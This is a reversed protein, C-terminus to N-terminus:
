GYSDGDRCADGLALWYAKRSLALRARATATGSVQIQFHMDPGVLQKLQFAAVDCESQRDGGPLSRQSTGYLNRRECARNFHVNGGSRLRTLLQPQPSTAQGTLLRSVLIHLELNHQRRGVRWFGLRHVLFHAPGQREIRANIELPSDMVSPPSRSWAWKSSSCSQLPAVSIQRTHRM